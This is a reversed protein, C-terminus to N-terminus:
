GPRNSVRFCIRPQLLQIMWFVLQLWMALTSSCSSPCWNLIVNYIMMCWPWTSQPQSPFPANHPLLRSHDPKAPVQWENPQAEPIYSSVTVPWYMIRNGTLSPLALEYIPKVFTKLLYVIYMSSFSALTRTMIGIKFNIILWHATRM